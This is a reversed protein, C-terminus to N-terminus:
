QRGYKSRWKEYAIRAMYGIGMALIIIIFDLM